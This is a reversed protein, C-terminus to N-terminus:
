KRRFIYDMCTDICVSDMVNGTERDMLVINLGRANLSYEIGNIQISSRNGCLAGVSSVLITNGNITQECSIEERSIEEALCTKGDLIALYSSQYQGELPFQLGLKQMQVITEQTLSYSAEDMASIVIVYDTQYLADLYHSINNCTLPGDMVKYGLPFAMNLRHTNEEDPIDEYTVNTTQMDFITFYLGEGECPITSDVVVRNRSAIDHLRM